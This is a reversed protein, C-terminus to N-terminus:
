PGKPRWERAKNTRKEEWDLLRLANAIRRSIDQNYREMAGGLGDVWVQKLLLPPQPKGAQGPRNGGLWEDIAEVWAEAERRTEQVPKIHQEEM